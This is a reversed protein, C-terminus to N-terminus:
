EFRVGVGGFATQEGGPSGEVFVDVNPSLLFVAGGSGQVHFKDTGVRTEDGEWWFVPGGYLRGAAYLSVVNAFTKGVVAGFRFDIGVYDGRTNATRTRTGLASLTTSLVVYPIVDTQEVVRWSLGVSGLWGPGLEFTEEGRESSESHLAGTLLSGAGMSFTFRGFYLDQTTVVSGYEVLAETEGDFFLLSARSYGGALAVRGRPPTFAPGEEESGCTVV